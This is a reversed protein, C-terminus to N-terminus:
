DKFNKLNYKKVRKKISPKGGDTIEAIYDVISKGEIEGELGSSRIIIKGEENICLVVNQADGLMPITANHSVLLIQKKSKIQKIASVLGKNIYNTALNDEPQDIIIPAIDGEFGLIIDLIVSTKWGASLEEFKKGNSAVIKYKRKNLKEFDKNIRVEFDDYGQVKPIQKKFNSEFLNEPQINEFTAIKRETKLYNNIFDLLVTKDLKFDNEIYLKHGMSIVEESDCKISYESIRKLSQHFNNYNRSYVNACQLLKEFNQKKTQDEANTSKLDVDYRDKEKKIIIGVQNAFLGSEYATKLEEKLKSVLNADHEVFPNISLIEDVQDLLEKHEDYDSKQYTVIIKEAETPLMNKLINDQVTETTTLSSIFPIRSLIESQSEISKVAAILERLDKRLKSLGKNVEDKIVEDGPFVNKIIDINNLQDESGDSVVKMIYNQSLYHPKIGSPNDVLLREVDFNSYKSEVFDNTVKRFVSDVFLTKGSSSGGIVVNLGPTLELDIDIKDNKLKVLGIHESWVTPKQDSYVLRSSESLSLRLGHFTPLAFMWTPVFPNAEASKANPYNRPVYNDTCTVLNVFENIGLRKFYEQTKELRTNGRATFGDFQNYYISREIRTDFQTGVPISKDFTSHSQGGHPLLIFDYSDFQKIILELRPISLDDKSVVKNPYLFDLKENIDDIIEGTIEPLNFYIHCHYPPCEDYNRVHLEVGLLLNQVKSVAELYASKNVTNHDTFSILFDSNDTFEKIKQVLLDVDYNENLTTPDDSTHIHLDIYVPNM